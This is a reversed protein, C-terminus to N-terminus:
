LALARRLEVDLLLDPYDELIDAKASACALVALAFHSVAEPAIENQAAFTVVRRKCSAKELITLLSRGTRVGAARLAEVCAADSNPAFRRGNTGKKRWGPAMPKKAELLAVLRGADLREDLQEGALYTKVLTDILAEREARLGSFQLDLMELTGALAGFRRLLLDPFHVGAKYCVEHEIEAWGHELLSRIQVEIWLRNYGTLQPSLRKGLRILLHVSRYGFQRLQLDRRKDVSRKEDVEFVGRIAAATRDVDEAYYVIVRVGVQDTLQQWPRRYQKQRVKAVASPLAKARADVQHLEVHSPALTEQVARRAVDAVKQLEPFRTQYREAFSQAPHARSHKM